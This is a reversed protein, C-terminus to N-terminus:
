QKEFRVRPGTYLRKQNVDLYKRIHSMYRGNKEYIVSNRKQDMAARVTTGRGGFPDLVTDGVFSYMKICRTPLEEPFPAIHGDRNDKVRVRRMSWIQKTYEVYEERRLRSAQKMEAPVYGYDAKGPKRLVYVYEVSDNILPSPPYPLSGYQFGKLPTKFWFIRDVLEFGAGLCVSLLEPGLPNWRVGSQGKEPLDSINLCFKRGEMLVRFCEGFTARMDELYSDLSRWSSYSKANFYPPSTVALHVSDSKIKRMDRSDGHIIRHSTKLKLKEFMGIEDAEAKAKADRESVLYQQAGRAATRGRGRGATKALAPARVGKRDQRVM